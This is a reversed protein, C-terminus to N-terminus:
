FLGYDSEEDIALKKNLTQPKSKFLANKLIEPWSMTVAPYVEPIDLNIFAEQHAYRESKDAYQQVVLLHKPFVERKVQVAIQKGKFVTGAIKPAYQASRKTYFEFLRLRKKFEDKSIKGSDLAAFLLQYAKNYYKQMNEKQYDECEKKGIIVRKAMLYSDLYDQMENWLGANGSMETVISKITDQGLTDGSFKTKSVQEVNMGLLACLAICTFMEFNYYKRNKYESFTEKKKEADGAIMTLYTKRSTLENFGEELFSGTYGGLRFGVFYFEVFKEFEEDFGVVTSNHRSRLHDLEHVIAHESAESKYYVCNSEASAYAYGSLITEDLVFIVDNIWEPVKEGMMQLTKIYKRLLLKTNIKNNEKSM